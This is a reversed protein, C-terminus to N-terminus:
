FKRAREILSKLRGETNNSPIKIVKEVAEWMGAGTWEDNYVSNEVLYKISELQTYEKIVKKKTKM